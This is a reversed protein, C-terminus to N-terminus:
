SRPMSEGVMAGRYWAEVGACRPDGEPPSWSAREVGQGPRYPGTKIELMVTGSELAALAHWNGAPIEAAPVLGDRSVEVRETVAGDDDFVLLVIRGRLAAFLEFGTGSTHRHVPVYTGPEFANCLRQVPDQASEHLNHNLRRRTNSAAATSLRDLLPSDIKRVISKM